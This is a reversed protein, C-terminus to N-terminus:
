RPLPPTIRAPAPARMLRQTLAVVLFLAVFNVGYFEEQNLVEGWHVLFTSATFKISLTHTLNFRIGVIIAIGAVFKYISASSYIVLVQPLQNLISMLLSRASHKSKLLLIGCLISFSYALLAMILILVVLPDSPGLQVIGVISVVLGLFGGILQYIGCAQIFRNGM